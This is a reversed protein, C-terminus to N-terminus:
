SPCFISTSARACDSYAQETFPETAGTNDSTLFSWALAMLKHKAREAKGDKRGEVDEEDQGLLSSSAWSLVDDGM